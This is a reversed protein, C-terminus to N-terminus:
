GSGLNKKIIKRLKAVSFVEEIVVIVFFVNLPLWKKGGFSPIPPPKLMVPM